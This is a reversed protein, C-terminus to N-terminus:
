GPQAATVERATAEAEREFRDSPDSVAIGGPMTTGAVPGARQQVVHVAEHALLERGSSSAPDYHRPHVVIEEGVTYAKAQVSEASTSDVHVRVSGLPSGLRDEMTKRVRADLPRGGGQGIVDFIPSREIPATAATEQGDADDLLRAVVRNGVLRQLRLAAPPTM